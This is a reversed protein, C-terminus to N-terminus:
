SLGVYEGRTFVWRNFYIIGLSSFFYFVICACTAFTDPPMETLRYYDRTMSFPILIHSWEFSHNTM